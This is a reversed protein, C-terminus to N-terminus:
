CEYGEFPSAYLCGGGCWVGSWNSGSMVGLGTVRQGSVM